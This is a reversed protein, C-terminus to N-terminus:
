TLIISQLEKALDDKGSVLYNDYKNPNYSEEKVIGLPDYYLSSVGMLRAIHSASTWPISIVLRSSKILRNISSTDAFNEFLDSQEIEDILRVYRSDVKNNLKRKSKRALRVRRSLHNELSETAKLIDQYFLLITDANLYVDKYEEVPISDFVCIDISIPINQSNWFKQSGCWTTPMGEKIKGNFGRQRYSKGDNITGVCSLTSVELYRFTPLDLEIHSVGKFTYPLSNTSYFRLESRNISALYRMWGSQNLLNTNSLVLSVQTELIKSGIVFSSLVESHSILQWGSCKLSLLALRFACIISSVCGKAWERVSLGRTLIFSKLPNPTLRVELNKNALLTKENRYEVFVIRKFIGTNAENYEQQLHYRLGQFHDNEVFNYPVGYVLFFESKRDSSERQLAKPFSRIVIDILKAIATAFIGAMFIWSFTIRKNEIRIGHRLRNAGNKRYKNYGHQYIYRFLTQILVAKLYSYPPQPAAIEDITKLIDRVIELWDAMQVHFKKVREATLQRQDAM